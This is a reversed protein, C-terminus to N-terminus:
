INITWVVFNLMPVYFITDLYKNSMFFVQLIGYGLELNTGTTLFFDFIKTNWESNVNVACLIFIMLVTYHMISQCLRLNAFKTQLDGVIFTRSSRCSVMRRHVGIRETLLTRLRMYICALSVHTYFMCKTYFMRGTTIHSFRLFM